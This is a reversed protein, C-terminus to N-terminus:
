FPKRYGREFCRCRNVENKEGRERMREMREDADRAAVICAFITIGVVAGAGVGSWFAIFCDSM